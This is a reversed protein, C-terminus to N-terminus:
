RARAFWCKPPDLRRKEVRANCLRGNEQCSRWRKKVLTLFFLFLFTKLFDRSRSRTSLPATVDDNVNKRRNRNHQMVTRKIQIRFPTIRRIRKLSGFDAPTPSSDALLRIQPSAEHVSVYWFRAFQRHSSYWTLQPIDFICQSVCNVSMMVDGFVPLVFRLRHGQHVHLCDNTEVCM